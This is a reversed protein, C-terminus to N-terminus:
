EGMEMTGDAIDDKVERNPISLPKNMVRYMGDIIAFNCFKERIVIIWRSSEASETSTVM